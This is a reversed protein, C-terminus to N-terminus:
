SSQIRGRASELHGSAPILTTAKGLGHPPLHHYITEYQGAKVLYTEHWIGVAGNQKIHKNFHQWAPLHVSTKSRAYNELHEFSRWYQVNVNPNSFGGSFGGLYGLEPHTELERIMNPFAMIVPGWQSVKWWHNIRMGILFVVFDGEIQACMRQNIIAPM